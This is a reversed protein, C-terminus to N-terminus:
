AGEIMVPMEVPDVRDTTCSCGCGATADSACGGAGGPNGDVGDGDLVVAEDPSQPEVTTGGSSGGCYAAFTFPEGCAYGTKYSASSALLKGDPSYALAAITTTPAYGPMTSFVAARHRATQDGSRPASPPVRVGMLNGEVTNSVTADAM